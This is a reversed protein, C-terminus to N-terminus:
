FMRKAGLYHKTYYSSSLKSVIVKKSGSSAAIFQGNGLYIGVHSAGPKYTEFFVLDGPKLKNKAIATGKEYQLAATRPIAIGNKALVYQTFGSCDFGKPTTGGWVYPVGLYGKATKIVKDVKIARATTRGVIGDAAISRAKQYTSVAKKTASGFYGTPQASFYGLSKLDKQLNTVEGSKMGYSLRIGQSYYDALATTMFVSLALIFVTLITLFKRM